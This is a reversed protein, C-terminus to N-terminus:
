KWIRYLILTYVAIASMSLLFREFDTEPFRRSQAIFAAIALLILLATSLTLILKRALNTRSGAAQPHSPASDPEVALAPQSTTSDPGITLAPQSVASDPGTTLAPQPQVLPLTPAPIPMELKEFLVRLTYARPVVEANEIRQVSRLSLGALDSLEQQTYGKAARGERILKAIDEGTM